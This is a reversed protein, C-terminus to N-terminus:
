DEHSVCLTHFREEVDPDGAWDRRATLSNQHQVFQEHCRPCQYLSWDPAPDTFEGDDVSELPRTSCSPCTPGFFRTCISPASILLATLGAALILAIAFDTLMPSPEPELLQRAVECNALRRKSPATLSLELSSRAPAWSNLRLM